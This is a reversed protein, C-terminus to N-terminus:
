IFPGALLLIQSWSVLKNEDVVANFERKLFIATQQSGCIMPEGSRGLTTNVSIFVNVFFLSRAITMSGFVINLEFQILM